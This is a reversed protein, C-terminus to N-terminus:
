PNRMLWKKLRLELQARMLRRTEKNALRRELTLTRSDTIDMISPTDLTPPVEAIRGGADREAVEDIGAVAGGKAHRISGALAAPHRITAFRAM